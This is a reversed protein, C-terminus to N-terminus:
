ANVRRRRCARCRREADSKSFGAIHRHGGAIIGPNVRLAVELHKGHEAAAHELLELEAPQDASVCVVGHEAAWAAEEPTRGNGSLTRHADDFGSARALELEGLSGADAHLGAERMVRAVLPLGNAKLAYAIRPQLPSLATVLEHARARIFDADYFWFARSRPALANLAAHACALVRADTAANM